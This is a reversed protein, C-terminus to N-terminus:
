HALKTVAVSLEMSQYWTKPVLSQEFRDYIITTTARFTCQASNPAKKTKLM